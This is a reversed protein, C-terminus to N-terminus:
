IVPFIPINSGLRGCNDANVHLYKPFKKFEALFDHLVHYLVTIVMNSGQEYQNHNIYFYNKVKNAYFGSSVIVGTVHCPLKYVGGLRKSNLLFRPIDTKRNDMGDLQIFLHDEPFSLALEQLKCIAMRARGYKERHKIRLSRCLEMELETKCTRQMEDLATCQSCVSHTSYRSIRIHPYSKDKRHPGFTLKFLEYFRSKKLVPHVSELCYIKYLMAKTQWSPLVLTEEDPAHQAYKHAYNVMWAKFKTAARSDRPLSANGHVFTQRGLLYEKLVQSLIYESVGSLESFSKICYQHGKWYYARCKIGFANQNQLHTLLSNKINTYTDLNFKSRIHTVESESMSSIMSSCNSACRSHCYSRAIVETDVQSGIEDVKRKFLMNGGQRIFSKNECPNLLSCSNTRFLVSAPGSRKFNTKTEQEVSCISSMDCGVWSEEYRGDENYNDEEVLDFVDDVSSDDTDSKNRCCDSTQDDTLRLSFTDSEINVAAECILMDGRETCVVKLEVNDTSYIIGDGNSNYILNLEPPACFFFVEATSSRTWTLQPTELLEYSNCENATARYADALYISPDFSTRLM